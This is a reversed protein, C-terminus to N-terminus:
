GQQAIAQDISGHIDEARTAFSAVRDVLAGLLGAGATWLYLLLQHGQFRSNLLLTLLGDVVGSAGKFRNADEVGVGMFIFGQAIPQRLVQADQLARADNM